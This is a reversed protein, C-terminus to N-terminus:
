LAKLILDDGTYPDKLEVRSVGLKFLIPVNYLLSSNISALILIKKLNLKKLPHPIAFFREITVSLTVLVSNICLIHAFEYRLSSARIM